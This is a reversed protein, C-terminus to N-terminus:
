WKNIDMKENNRIYLDVLKPEELIQDRGPINKKRSYINEKFKERSKKNAIIHISVFNSNNKYKKRVSDSISVSCLIVNINQKQIFSAMKMYPIDLQKRGEKSYNSLQFIMRIDDGNIIITSGNIKRLRNRLKKAITTKGSGPLGTILLFTNSILKKKMTM